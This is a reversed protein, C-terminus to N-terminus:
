SDTLEEKHHEEYIYQENTYLFIVKPDDINDILIKHVLHLTFMVLLARM